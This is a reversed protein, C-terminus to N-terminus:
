FEYFSSDSLRRSIFNCFFVSQSKRSYDQKQGCYEKSTSASGLVLGMAEPESESHPMRDAHNVTAWPNIKQASAWLTSEVRFIWEVSSSSEAIYKHELLKAIAICPCKGETCLAKQNEV